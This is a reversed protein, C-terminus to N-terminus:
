HPKPGWSPASSPHASSTLMRPSTGDANALYIQERRGAPGTGTGAFAIRTGSPAFSPLLEDIGLPNALAHPSSGDANMVWIAFSSTPIPQPRDSEWAIQSGGPSYTPAINFGPDNTLDVKNSGDADMVFIDGGFRPTTGAAAAYAIQRGNPSYTPESPNGATSTLAHLHSGDARMVLIQSRKARARDFVIQRGNPSFQPDFDNPSGKTLRRVHGGNASMVYIDHNGSHEGSFAIRRGNPSVSPSTAGNPNHTLQTLHSGDPRITFVEAPGRGTLFQEFAIIGDRGPFSADAAPTVTLAAVCVAAAIGARVRM